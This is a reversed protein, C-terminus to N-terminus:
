LINRYEVRIGLANAKNISMEMGETIGRDCYVAVFDVKFLWNLALNIGEYREDSDEDLVQTYLLHSAFPTEGRKISDLLASKAYEM